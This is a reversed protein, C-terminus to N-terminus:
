LEKFREWTKYLTEDNRQYFTNVENRLKTTKGLPFYETFFAQSLTLWTTFSGVLRSDLWTITRDWLFFPFLRLKVIDKPVENM